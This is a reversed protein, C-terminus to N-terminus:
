REKETTEDALMSLLLGIATPVGGGIFQGIAQLWLLRVPFVSPFYLVLMTWVCGLM